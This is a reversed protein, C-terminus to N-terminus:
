TCGSACAASRAADAERLTELAGFVGHGYAGLVTTGTLCRARSTARRAAASTAARWSDLAADLLTGGGLVVDQEALLVRLGPMGWPTPPASAQPVPVSSSCM